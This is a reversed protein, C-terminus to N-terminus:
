YIMTWLIEGKFKEVFGKLLPHDNENYDYELTKYEIKPKAPNIPIGYESINYVSEEYWICNECGKCEKLHKQAEKYMSM